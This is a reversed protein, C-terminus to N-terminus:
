PVRTAFAACVRSRAAHLRSYCTQLPAKVAQAVEAMTLGEVEYLLFVRRQEPDLADLAAEVLELSERAELRAQEDVPQEPPTDRPIEHRFRARRRHDSAVRYAIGYLWARMAGREEYRPLQKRVVLFVDQAVDERDAESVGMGRLIRWVFSLHETFVQELSPRGSVDTPYPPQRRLNDFIM